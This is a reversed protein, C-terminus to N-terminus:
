DLFFRANLSLDTVLIDEREVAHRVKPLVLRLVNKNELEGVIREIDDRLRVGFLVDREIKSGRLSLLLCFFCIKISIACPIAHICVNPNM